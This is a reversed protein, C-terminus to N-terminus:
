HLLVFLQGLGIALCPFFADLQSRHASLIIRPWIRIGHVPWPIRYTLFLFFRFNILLVPLIDSDKSIKVNRNNLDMVIPRVNHVTELTWVTRARHRATALLLVHQALLLHLFQLVFQLHRALLPQCFLLPDRLQLLLQNCDTLLVSMNSPNKSLNLSHGSLSSDPLPPHWPFNPM